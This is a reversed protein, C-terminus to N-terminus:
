KRGRASGKKAGPGDKHSRGHHPGRELPITRASTRVPHNSGRLPQELPSREQIGAPAERVYHRVGSKDSMIKLTKNLKLFRVIRFLRAVKAVRLINYFPVTAIIDLWCNRVFSWFGRERKYLVFLDIFFIATIALDLVFFLLLMRELSFFVDLLIIIFSFAVAFFLIVNWRRETLTMLLTETHDGIEDAHRLPDRTARMSGLEVIVKLGVVLLMSGLFFMAAEFFRTLLLVLPHQGLALQSAMIVILVSAAAVLFGIEEEEDINLIASFVGFFILMILVIDHMGTSLTFAGALIALLAGFTFFYVGLGKYIDM